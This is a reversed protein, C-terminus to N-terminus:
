RRVEQAKLTATLGAVANSLSVIADQMRDLKATVEDQAKDRAARNIVISNELVTLRTPLNDQDLQTVQDAVDEIRSSANALEVKLNIYGGILTCLLAVVTLVNGLTVKPDFSIRPM